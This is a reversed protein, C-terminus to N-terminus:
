VPTLTCLMIVRIYPHGAEQFRDERGGPKWPHSGTVQRKLTLAARRQDTWTLQGGIRVVVPDSLFRDKGVRWPRLGLHAVTDSLRCTNQL